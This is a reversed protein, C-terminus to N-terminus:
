FTIREGSLNYTVESKFFDLITRPRIRNVIYPGLELPSDGFAFIVNENNDVKMIGVPTAFLGSVVVQNPRKYEVVLVPVGKKDTIEFGISSKWIRWGKADDPLDSQSITVPMALDVNKTINSKGTMPVTKNASTIRAVALEFIGDKQFLYKDSVNGAQFNGIVDFSFTSNTGITTYDERRKNGYGAYLIADVLIQNDKSYVSVIAYNNLALGVVSPENPVGSEISQFFDPTRTGYHVSVPTFDGPPRKIVIGSNQPIYDAYLPMALWVAIIAAVSIAIRFFIKAKVVIVWAWYGICVSIVAIPFAFGLPPFTGLLVSGVVASLFITELSIIIRMVYGPIHRAEHKRLPKLKDPFVPLDEVRRARGGTLIATSWPLFRALLVYVSLALGTMVLPTALYFALKQADNAPKIIQLINPLTTALFPEHFAFVFFSANGLWLFVPKIRKIQLFKSLYLIAALGTMVGVNHLLTGPPKIITDAAFAAVSVLSVIIGYMDTVFPQQKKIAFVSGAFFFLIPMMSAMVSFPSLFEPHSWDFFLWIVLFIALVVVPKRKHLIHFIPTLLILVILERIFWFQFTESRPINFFVFMYILALLNWLLFPVLVTRFRTKLKKYYAADSWETEYFFLFGSKFFFAPVAISALGYSIFNRIFDGTTGMSNFVPDYAHIFVVGLILPFLILDLRELHVNKRNM